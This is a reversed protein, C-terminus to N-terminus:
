SFLNTVYCGHDSRVALIVPKDPCLNSRERLLVPLETKWASLSPTTASDSWSLSCISAILVDPAMRHRSRAFYDAWEVGRLSKKEDGVSWLTEVSGRTTRVELAIAGTWTLFTGLSFIQLNSAESCPNVYILKSISAHARSVSWYESVCRRKYIGDCLKTIYRTYLQCYALISEIILSKKCLQITDRRRNRCTRRIQNDNYLPRLPM